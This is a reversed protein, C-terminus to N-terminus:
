EVITLVNGEIKLSEGGSLKMVCDGQGKQCEIWTEWNPATADGIAVSTVVSRGMFVAVVGVERCTPCATDTFLSVSWELDARWTQWLPLIAEVWKDAKM